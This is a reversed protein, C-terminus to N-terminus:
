TKAVKKGNLPVLLLGVLIWFFERIRNMLSIYIGIAPLLGLSQIILYLGGERSGLSFPMFFILNIILSTAASIYVAEPYSIQIDIAKLIFFFELAGVLRSLFIIGFSKLFLPKHNVYFDRINEDINKIKDQNKEIRAHLFKLPKIKLITNCIRVLFGRKYMKRFLLIMFSIFVAVMVLFIWDAGNAAIAWFMCLVGLAWFWFHSFMIIMTYLIVSSAAKESGIHKKLSMIKYPEGGLSAFPTMYNIANGTINVSLLKMFKVNKKDKGLIYYWGASNFIYIVLWVAIIPFFYWGTRQLNSLINDFGFDSALYALVAFGILMLAANVVNKKNLKM